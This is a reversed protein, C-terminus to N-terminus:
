LSSYCTSCTLTDDICMCSKGSCTCYIPICINYAYAVNIFEQSLSDKKSTGTRWGVWCSNCGGLNCEISNRIDLGKSRAYFQRLLHRHIPRGNHKREMIRQWRRMYSSWASGTLVDAAGYRQLVSWSRALPTASHM